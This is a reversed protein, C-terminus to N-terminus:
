LAELFALLKDTPKYRGPTTNLPATRALAKEKLNLDGHLYIQTTQASEHGLWLAITSTDVGSQLLNMACTHRLVHPSLKKTDLSRCSSAASKAHKTLLWQVADTSLPQGRRTPFLPDSPSGRREKLWVRLVAVTQKTLPTARHKRGKGLCRIHPGTGLEIDALTASTLESVRLGTQIATVILAHDRRGLWTTRDPAALLAATEAPNLYNVIGREYRKPPIALVRSILEAHEPHRLSAFKFLSRIATLRANRTRASNHREHELHTLFAGILVADLDSVDLDSPTKGTRDRTFGFLLTFADRYAGVTRPSAARQTLLRETFFAEVTPALATM